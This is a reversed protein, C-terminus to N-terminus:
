IILMFQVIISINNMGFLFSIESFCWHTHSIPLIILLSDDFRAVFYFCNYLTVYQSGDIPCPIRKRGYPIKKYGSNSADTATNCEICTTNNTILTSSSTSKTEELHQHNGCYKKGGPPHQKCFRNKHTLFAHCRDWREPSQKSEEKTSDRSRKM